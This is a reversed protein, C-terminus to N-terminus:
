KVSFEFIANVLERLGNDYVTIETSSDSSGGGQSIIVDAFVRAKEGPKGACWLLGLSMVGIRSVKSESLKCPTFYNLLNYLENGERWLSVDKWAKSIDKSKFFQKQMQKITFQEARIAKVCTWYDKVHTRTLLCPLTSSSSGMPASAIKNQPHHYRLQVCCWCQGM